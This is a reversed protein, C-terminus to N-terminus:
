IPNIYAFEGRYKKVVENYARAAEVASKFYGITKSVNNTRIHAVWKNRDKWYYVGKYGSAGRIVASNWSNQAKNCFRLNCRRNDLGDRNAHDIMSHPPADLLVRHMMITMKKGNVRISRVAYGESFYWKLHGVKNYDETDVIAYKGISLLIRRIKSRM